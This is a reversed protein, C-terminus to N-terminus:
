RPVDFLCRIVGSPASTGSRAVGVSLEAGRGKGRGKSTEHHHAIIIFEKGKAKATKGSHRAIFECFCFSLFFFENKKANVKM